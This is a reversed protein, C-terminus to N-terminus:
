PVSVESFKELGFLTNSTLFYNSDVYLNRNKFSESIQFNVYDFVLYFDNTKFFFVFIISFIFSLNFVYFFVLKYFLNFFFSFLLILFFFLFLFRWELFFFFSNKSFFGGWLVFSLIDIVTEFYKSFFFEFFNVTNTFFLISFNTIPTYYVTSYSKFWMDFDALLYLNYYLFIDLEYTLGIFFLKCTFYFFKFETFYLFLFTLLFLSVAGGVVNIQKQTIINTLQKENYPFKFFLGFLNM